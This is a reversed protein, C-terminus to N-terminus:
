AKKIKNGPESITKNPDMKPGTKPKYGQSRGWSHLLFTDLHIFIYVEPPFFILGQTPFFSAKRRRLTLTTISLPTKYVSQKIKNL